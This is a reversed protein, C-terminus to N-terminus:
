LTHPDGDALSTRPPLPPLYSGTSYAGPIPIASNRSGSEPPQAVGLLEHSFICADTVVIFYFLISCCRSIDPKGSRQRLSQELQAARQDVSTAQPRPMPKPRPLRQVEEERARAMAESYAVNFPRLDSDPIGHRRRTARFFFFLFFLAYTLKRCVPSETTLIASV